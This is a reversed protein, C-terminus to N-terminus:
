AAKVEIDNDNSRGAKAATANIAKLNVGAEASGM